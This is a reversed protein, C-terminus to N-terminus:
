GAPQAQAHADAVAKVAYAVKSVSQRLAFAAKTVPSKLSGLLRALLQERSPLKALAKVEDANLARKGLWGGKIALKENAKAFDALAKATLVPDAYGLAFASPGQLADDLPDFGLEALARKMLRNKAVRYEISQARMKQRLDNVEAVTLGRYDAVVVAQSRGLKEVYTDMRDLKKKSPM